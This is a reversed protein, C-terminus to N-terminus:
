EGALQRALAVSTPCLSGRVRRSGGSRTGVKGCATSGATCYGDSFAPFALVDGPALSALEVTEKAEFEMTMAPMYDGIAEHAIVAKQGGEGGEAAGRQV